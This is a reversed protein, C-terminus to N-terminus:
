GAADTGAASVSAAGREADLVSEAAEDSDGGDPGPVAAAAPRAEVDTELHPLPPHDPHAALWADILHEVVLSRRLVSRVFTRGRESELYRLLRPNDAYQQRARALEAEVAADTAEVGEVQAIKSLVLLVKARKEARPRLEDLLRREETALLDDESGSRRVGPPLVLGTTADRSAESEAGERERQAARIRLYAQYDIGQRALATRLEDQMLELEEEILIELIEVTANAAAYEVIRDGFAHRARDVAHRELRARIEARLAALNPYPGVAQAFADDVPPLVKERLEHLTVTFEVRAGALDANPEDAPLTLEFTRTEGVQLGILQDEFGPLLGEQGILVPFRRASAGDLPQGDRRGEFEIVALDGARAPRDEVPSLVAHQERLEEVVREVRTEDVPEIEPRFPFNKYDGLQVEPRVPVTARFVLPKGEEAQVVEVNAQALPIVKAELLAARYTDEILQEVAEDLVAGPGLVRELVARPAKGPRFGPVRTRRSLRRVAEDVARALQESPVEVQLTVSSKPAPTVTVNMARATYPPPHPPARPGEPQAWPRDGEPGNCRTCLGPNTQAELDQHRRTGQVPHLAVADRQMWHVHRGGLTGSVGRANCRM